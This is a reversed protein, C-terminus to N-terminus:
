GWDQPGRPQRGFKQNESKSRRQAFVALIATVDGGITSSKSITLCMQVRKTVIKSEEFQLQKALNAAPTRVM